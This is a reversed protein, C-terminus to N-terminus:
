ELIMITPISIEVCYKKLSNEKLISSPGPDEKTTTGVYTMLNKVQAKFRSTIIDSLAV